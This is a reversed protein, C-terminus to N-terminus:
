CRKRPRYIIITAIEIITNTNAKGKFIYNYNIDDSTSRLTEDKSSELAEIVKEVYGEPIFDEHVIHVQYYTQMDKGNSSKGTRLRNYVFYNWEKLEKEQCQGYYVKGMPVSEDKAIGELADRIAKIVSM